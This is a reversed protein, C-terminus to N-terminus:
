PHPHEGPLLQPTQQQNKYTAYRAKARRKSLRHQNLFSDKHSIVTCLPRNRRPTKRLPRLVFNQFDVVEVLFGVTLFDSSFGPTIDVILLGKITEIAVGVLKGGYRCFGQVQPVNALIAPAAINILIFVAPKPLQGVATRRPLHTLLAPISGNGRDVISKITLRVARHRRM